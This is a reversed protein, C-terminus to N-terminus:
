QSMPRSTIIHQVGLPTSCGEMPWYASIAAIGQAQVGMSRPALGNSRVLNSDRWWAWSRQRNRGGSCQRDICPVSGQVQKYAAAASSRCWAGNCGSRNGAAGQRRACRHLRMTWTTVPVPSEPHVIKRIGAQGCWAGIKGGVPWGVRTSAREPWCPGWANGFARRGGLRVLAWSVRVRVHGMPRGATGMSDGDKCMFSRPHGRHRARRRGIDLWVM